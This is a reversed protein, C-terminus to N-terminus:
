EDLLNCQFEIIADCFREIFLDMGSTLGNRGDGAFGKVLSWNVPVYCRRHYFYLILHLCIIFYLVNQLEKKITLINLATIVCM